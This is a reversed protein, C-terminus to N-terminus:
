KKKIYNSQGRVKVLAYKEYYGRTKFVIEEIMRDNFKGYKILFQKLEDKNENCIEHCMLLTSSYIPKCKNRYGTFVEFGKGGYKYGLRVKSIKSPKYDEPASIVSKSDNDIYNNNNNVIIPEPETNQEMTFQQKNIAYHQTLPISKNYLELETETKENQPTEIVIQKSQIEFPTNSAITDKDTLVPSNNISNNTTNNTHQNYFTTIEQEESSSSDTNINDILESYHNTNNYDDNIFDIKDLDNLIKNFTATQTALEAAFGTYIIKLEIFQSSDKNKYAKILKGRAKRIAKELKNTILHTEILSKFSDM